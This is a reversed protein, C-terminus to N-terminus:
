YSERGHNWVRLTESIHYDRKLSISDVCEKVCEELV